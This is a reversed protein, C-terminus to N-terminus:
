NSIYPNGSLNKRMEDTLVFPENVVMEGKSEENAQVSGDYHLPSKEM